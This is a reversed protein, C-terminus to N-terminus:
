VRGTKRKGVIGVKVKGGEMEIWADESKGMEAWGM